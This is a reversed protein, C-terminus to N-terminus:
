RDTPLRTSARRTSLKAQFSLDTLTCPRKYISPPIWEGNNRFTLCENGPVGGDEKFVLTSAGRQVAGAAATNTSGTAAGTAAGAAAGGAAGAAAGVAAGSAAGKRGKKRAQLSAASASAAFITVIYAFRM